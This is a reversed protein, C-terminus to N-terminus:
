VRSKLTQDLADQQQLQGALLGDIAKLERDLARLRDPVALVEPSATALGPAPADLLQDAIDRNALLWADYYGTVLGWLGAIEGLVGTPDGGRQLRDTLGALDARAEELRSQLGRLRQWADLQRLLAAERQALAALDAEGVALEAHASEVEPTLATLRSEAAAIGAATEQLRRRLAPKEEGLREAIQQSQAAAAQALASWHGSRRLDQFRDLPGTQAAEWEALAKALEIVLLRRETPDAQEIAQWHGIFQHQLTQFDPNAM